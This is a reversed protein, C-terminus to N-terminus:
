PRRACRFGTIDSRDGPSLYGRYSARLFRAEDLFSGGRTVRFAGPTLNACDSCAAAYASAYWDLTWEWVGGALDAHGWRGNGKPAESGVRNAGGRVGDVCFTGAPSNVYYNAYTCDIAGSTAPSSWPYVRQDNGGSAAYNWEAETALYGGEWICFAMAEYWTVCDIPESENAGPAETWTHYAANCQIREKLAATTGVLRTNWASDWGSGSLAPRAGAGAAPPSTQTGFGAEVFARFRGVTVEYKDLVFSSVTAPYGMDTFGVADYSRHFAGGAVPASQCCDEDGGPGCTPPLGRCNPDEPVDIPADIASDVGADDVPADPGGGSAGGNCSTAMVAMVVAASWGMVRLQQRM